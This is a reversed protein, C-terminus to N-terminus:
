AAECSTSCPCEVDAGGGVFRPLFPVALHTDIEEPCCQYAADYDGGKASANTQRSLPTLCAPVILISGGPLKRKM